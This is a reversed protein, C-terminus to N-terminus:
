NNHMKDNELPLKLTVIYREENNAIDLVASSGYLLQLRKRVNEIGIGGQKAKKGGHCSNDCVFDLVKEQEDVRLSVAIDSKKTYTVGHKFANEVFVVLLLSPVYLCGCNKPLDFSLSVSLKDSYRLRMLDIYGKIFSVDKELPVFSSSADYLVYRMMKSLELVAAQAKGTDIDILAHINNLTNMFFHPNIQYKLYDLEAKLKERELQQISEDRRMTFFSLRVCINFALVFVVLLLRVTDPTSITHLFSENRKGPPLRKVLYEENVFFRDHVTEQKGAYFPIVFQRPGDMGKHRMFEEGDDNYHGSRHMGSPAKHPVGHHKQGYNMFPSFLFVACCIVIVSILYYLYYRGKKKYFLLPILINNNLIFAIAAPLLYIWYAYIAEAEISIETGNLIKGLYPALLLAGWFLIYIVYEAAKKGIGLTM